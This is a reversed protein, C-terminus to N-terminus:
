CLFDHKYQRLFLSKQELIERAEDNDFEDNMHSQEQNNFARDRANVKLEPKLGEGEGEPLCNEQFRLNIKTIM